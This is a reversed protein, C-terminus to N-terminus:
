TSNSNDACSWASSGGSDRYSNRIDVVSGYTQLHSNAGCLTEIVSVGAGMLFWGSVVVFVSWGVMAYWKWDRVPRKWNDYLWM